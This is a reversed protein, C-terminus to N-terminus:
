EASNLRNRRLDMYNQLIVTAAVADVAAKRKKGRTNTENLYGHATITTGREDVFEVPLGTKEALLAGITRASEASAGESGDMNRPLGVALVQAKHEAALRAIEEMLRERNTQTVVCLPTALMEAPDCISLGTRVKGLDVGLIVM